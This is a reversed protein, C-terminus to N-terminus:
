VASVFEVTSDELEAPMTFEDEVEAMNLKTLRQELWDVAKVDLVIRKAKLVDYVTLDEVQICNVVPINRSALDLNKPLTWDGSVLLVGNGWSLERLRKTLESTKKGKWRLSEVVGLFRDQLKASLAVRMGMQVVKRPLKTAFDRPRPGFAVGGSRLMPSGADGLRAM